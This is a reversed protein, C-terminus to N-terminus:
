PPEKGKASLPGAGAAPLGPPEAPPAVAGRAASPRPGDAPAPGSRRDREERTATPPTASSTPTPGPPAAPTAPTASAAPDPGPSATPASATRAAGPPARAGDRLARVAEELIQTAAKHADGKALAATRAKLDAARIPQGIIVRLKTRKPVASGPPLAQHTGQIYVPLSDVECQLALYGATPKFPAMSGDRSRTGEPFILLNYGRRLAEVAARLGRRISGGREMPILNTFNEFYARKLRTDFFYDRAALAALKKGQDGLAVKVLGMDLHSAHNAVVLFNRDRPIFAEGTVEARYFSRYLAQQGADLVRRGLSALAAPIEVDGKAQRGPGAPEPAAGGGEESRHTGPGVLRSLEGVTQVQHLSETISPPVGAAELAAALESLMLSDFSLDAALHSQHTIEARARRTVEALLDLLWGDRGHAAAERVKKGKHAAAELQRIQEVVWPRRVKRTSTKELEGDTFHWIKVRKHFPLGASVRRLHEEVLRRSEERSRGKPEPVLLMAVKEGAGDPLGVISLEKIIEPDRYLEELEDPYVNEGDADIIVDKKRGVLVLKGDRDLRGLDGTHLWGDRLVEGTRAHDVEPAGAGPRLYGVMVNPGRAVVEGVGSADPEHIRIEIGPLPRGVTGGSPDDEPTSVSLVPAAETLGYGEYLDFGMDHFARQVEPSLASGGSVMIRLRGGLKRHVPWLLLKGLNLDADSRLKRNAKRLLAFAQEVFGPRAAIEQTIRRHLLAWLAPVGIMATVRGSELADGLRDATVEDLYEIECGRSLPVLLGCTFEFTHHLPLVSLLGDGPGLDFLGALRAVLSAFNRHTLMVGKPTGTTGSTFIISALDEPSAGRPLEAPPGGALAEPLLALRPGARWRERLAPVREATEESLLAVRAGSTRALNELEAETLQADVPVAVGGALIIGFWAIAWEPRNESALLVRDGKGVGAARLFLAVRGAWERMEGYTFRDKHEGGMRLAVRPRHTAVAAELLELLDRHQRVVHVKRQSEEELAPFVWQELGKMHVDLWYSRWDIHEPDWPLFARDRPALRAHLARLNACSFIYRNDWVFPLFLEFLAEVQGLKWEAEDLEDAVSGALAGLRPAGWRPGEERLLRAAERALRGFAPASFAQYHRKSVSYPEFRARVENWLENGETRRKYFRRRYLGTLEVARRGWFANSDSSALHYVNGGPRHPEGPDGARESSAPGARRAPSPAASAGSSGVEDPPGKARGELLAASIAILGAAVLDVPILDLIAKEAMPYVRQGKLGMFALPASTTFGENWGPFPYRLATEVIAPRVIAHRIGGRVIAQEGLSKTYTYTNPWGWHRAREMGLEVLRQTIWLRKERGAALKEAKPDGKRGEAELRALARERFLSLRAADEAEERIQAMRRDCDALERDLDFDRADLTPQKPRGMVGERRPFYGDIPEDEYVVGDRNGAVFCTSVHLLAAGTRRCLEVAHQAGRSNVGLALELSPDFDVLGACNVVLDLPGLAALGAESLGLLPDSVDGALAQCKQRIFAEFGDGRAARIPDFPRARAVKGLFRDDPNGGTGARVLVFVKGVGPYRHLLLSLAVKGVFGTAGTFLIRRGALAREVDLSPAELPGPGGAAGPSPADGAGNKRHATM